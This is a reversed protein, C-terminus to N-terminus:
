PAIWFSAYNVAEVNGSNFFHHSLNHADLSTLDGFLYIATDDRSYGTASELQTLSNGLLNSIVGSGTRFIALISASNSASTYGSLYSYVLQAILYDTRYANVSIFHAFLNNWDSTVMDTYMWDMIYDVSYGSRGSVGNIIRDTTTKDKNQFSNRIVASDDSDTWGELANLVNGVLDEITTEQKQIEPISQKQLIAGQQVTHTLEHALLSQGSINQTNYKGQNFYIDSGHTFAQAHLEKNMQIAESGTHVRVGSFDAGFANEMSSQTDKPLHSGSGNTSNLRSELEIPSVENVDSKRQLNEEKECEACKKQIEHNDETPVRGEFAPKRQIENSEGFGKDEKEQINEEEKSEQKQLQLPALTLNHKKQVIPIGADQKSEFFTKRQIRTIPLPQLSLTTQGNTKGSIEPTSKTDLKQVVKDAMADAEQEYKDGPQGITLKPQVIPKNFFYGSDNGNKSTTNTKFFPQIEPQQDAFLDSGERFFSGNNKQTNHKSAPAKAETKVM